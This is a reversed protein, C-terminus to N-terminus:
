RIKTKGLEDLWELATGTKNLLSATTPSKSLINAGVLMAPLPNGHAASSVAALGGIYDDLPILNKRNSVLVQRSAAREMPIMESLQKNLEKIGPSGKNEVVTKMADYLANHAQASVPASPNGSRSGAEAIWDGKKGIVQKEMQTELLNIKGEPYAEDFSERMKNLEKKIDIVATKSKGFKEASREAQSFIDDVFTYNDPDLMTESNLIKDKVQKYTDSIKTQWQKKVSKANGFVNYKTYLENAAGKNFEPTNIKVKTGQVRGAASKFGKSTAPLAKGIIPAGIKAAATAPPLIEASGTGIDVISQFNPSKEYMEGINQKPLSYTGYSPFQMNSAPPPTKPALKKMGGGIINGIEYSGPAQRIPAAMSQIIGATRSLPANGGLNQRNVDKQAQEEIDSKVRERYSPGFDLAPVSYSGYSTIRQTGLKNEFSRSAGAPEKEQSAVSQELQAMEEDSLVDPANEPSFSAELEAMEEDTM